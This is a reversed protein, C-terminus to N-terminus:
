ILRLFNKSKWLIPIIHDLDNQSRLFALIIKMKIIKRVFFLDVARSGSKFKQNINEEAEHFNLIKKLSEKTYAKYNNEFM